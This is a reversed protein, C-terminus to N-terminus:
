SLYNYNMTAIHCLGHNTLQISIDLSLEEPTSMNPKNDPLPSFASLFFRRSASKADAPAFSNKVSPFILTSLRV